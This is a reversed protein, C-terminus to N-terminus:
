LLIKRHHAMSRTTEHDVHVFAREVEPLVELKDQLLQSIDHAKWLPTERSMAIDVEVFYGPGSHYVRVTEIKEIEDSFTAVKYTVLQIFEHSASKGALLGFETSVRKCWSIVISSSIILGGVPDLWWRLKSGGASMLLGFGSAPLLLTAPMTQYSRIVLGAGAAIISPQHFGNLQDDRHSFITRMSEVAVVLSVCGMLAGYAINGITELRSGGVPWKDVDLRSAKYHFYKLVLISGVDFISEIAAALLSLSSSTAAAYVQLVCIMVNVFLSGYVAIQIPLRAAEEAMRADESHEDIPKLLNDILSNQRSHYAGIGKGNKGRKRLAELESASKMASRLMYPDALLDEPPQKEVDLEIKRDCSSPSSTRHEEHISSVRNETLQAPQAEISM